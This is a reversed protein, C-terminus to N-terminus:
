QQRRFAVLQYWNEGATGERWRLRPTLPPNFAPGSPLWNAGLHEIVVNVENPAVVSLKIHQRQDESIGQVLRGTTYGIHVPIAGTEAAAIYAQENVYGLGGAGRPSISM